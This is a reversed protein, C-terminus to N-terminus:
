DKPAVTGIVSQLPVARGDRYWWKAECLHCTTFALQRGGVSMTISILDGQECVPCTGETKDGM